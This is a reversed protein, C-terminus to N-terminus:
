SREYSHCEIYDEVLLPRHSRANEDMLIFNNCIVAAYQHVYQDFIENRLKAGTLTGGYLVHLNIHGGISIGAWVIIVGGRYIHIEAINFHNYRPRQERWILLGGLDNELTFRYEVTFM